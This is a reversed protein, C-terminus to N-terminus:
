GMRGGFREALLGHRLGRDSVVLSACGLQELVTRIVCAGALIVEARKPQLGAIKRREDAPRSRYLEIQRDVEDRDLVTGQVVEADYTALGHRVAALNTAAGGLAVLADVHGRGALRSLDATIADLAARLTEHSVAAHLGFRETLRVAGVNVSFQEEIRSARGFTFQSSGGGTDFLVLTGDPVPLTSTAALYALRAENEGSIVEIELGTRDRVSEILEMSNSAIRMGATGVAAIEAAGDRRAEAVMDAIADATRAMPAPQLSGTDDLGEGLRSIDARDVITQWRGRGGDEGIHFKVSNTGVDIVAYRAGFGTLTKLGRALCTNASDLGLSRVTEVVLAPDESEVAVTRVAGAGTRIESVEVMCGGPRYHERHKHVAVTQLVESLGLIDDLTYTRDQLDAVPIGLAGLLVSVDGPTLPFTAKLVPRWQELGADDARERVKVDMLGDRVKVSADSALSLVYIEDSEQVREPVLAAFAADATAAADGFARWEWRPVIGVLTANV